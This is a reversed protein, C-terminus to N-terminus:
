RNEILIKIDELSQAIQADLNLKSDRSYVKRDQRKREMEDSILDVVKEDISKEIISVSLEMNQLRYRTDEASARKSSSGFERRENEAAHSWRELIELIRSTTVVVRSLLFLVVLATTVLIVNVIM